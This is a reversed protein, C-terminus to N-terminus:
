RPHRHMTRGALTPPAQPSRQPLRRRPGHQIRVQLPVSLRPPLRRRQGRRLRAPQPEVREPVPPTDNAAAASLAPGPDGDAATGAAIEPAEGSASQGLAEDRSAGPRNSAQPPDAGEGPAGDGGSTAKPAQRAELDAALAPPAQERPTPAPRPGSQGQKPHEADDSGHQTAEATPPSTPVTATPKEPGEADTGDTPSEGAAQHQPDTRLSAEDPLMMSKNEPTAARPTPHHESIGAAAGTSETPGASTGGADQGADAGVPSHPQPAAMPGSENMGRAEPGLAADSAPPESETRAPAAPGPPMPPEGHAPQEIQEQPVSLEEVKSESVVDLQGARPDHVATPGEQASTTAEDTLSRLSDVVQGLPALPALVDVGLSPALHLVTDEPLSEVTPRNALGAPYQTAPAVISSSERFTTTDDNDAIPEWPTTDDRRSGEALCAHSTEIPAPHEPSAGDGSSGLEPPLPVVEIALHADLASSAEDPEGLERADEDGPIGFTPESSQARDVLEVMQTASPPNPATIGSVIEPSGFSVMEPIGFTSSRVPSDSSTTHVPSDFTTTRVPSGFCASARVPSGFCASAGFSHPSDNDDQEDVAADCDAGVGDDGNPAVAAPIQGESDTAHSTIGSSARDESLHNTGTSLLVETHGEPLGMGTPRLPPLAKAKAKVATPQHVVEAAPRTSPGHGDLGSEAMGCSAAQSSPARM